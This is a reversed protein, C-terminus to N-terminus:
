ENVSTASTKMKNIMEFVGKQASESGSNVMVIYGILSKRDIQAYTFFTGDSGAHESILQDDKTYNGWGIAYDDKATFLHNYTEPRLFNTEGSLGQLHLQIYKAYSDINMSLDGAPEAMSLDYATSPPVPVLKGDELWHGYPENEFNRNPWGFVVDIKLKRELVESIMEEWSQGTVKELMLAAVSYGANSYNFSNSSEVPSLTLVYEVFGERKEQKDGKLPPLNQYEVGSTFPQIKAHHTLLDELTIMSYAPNVKDKVEPFLDFFKTDWKVLKDEVLKAAVFGTIAKTNSGLHFYDKPNVNSETDLETIKHHGLVSKIIISDKTVIAFAMAPISDKEMISKAIAAFDQAYIPNSFISLSIIILSKLVGRDFISFVTKAM